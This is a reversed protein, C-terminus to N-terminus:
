RRRSRLPDSRPQITARATKQLRTSSPRYRRPRHRHCNRLGQVLVDSLIEVIVVMMATYRQTNVALRNTSISRWCRFPVHSSILMRLTAIRPNMMNWSVLGAM